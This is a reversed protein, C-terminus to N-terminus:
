AKAQQSGMIVSTKKHAPSYPQKLIQSINHQSASAMEKRNMEQANMAPLFHVHAITKRQFLLKVINMLIGDDDIFPAASSMRKKHNWYRIAVPQVFCKERCAVELLMPRFTRTTEGITTTGEPFVMLADGQQIHKQANPLSRYVQFKNDRRIFVTGLLQALLGFIPWSKVESKAIFRMNSAPLFLLADLWSIHNAIFLKAEPHAQGIYRTEVHLCAMLLHGLHRKCAEIMRKRKLEDNIFLYLGIACSMMAILAFLGVIVRLPTTLITLM